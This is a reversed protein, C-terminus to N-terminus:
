RAFNANRLPILIGLFNATFGIILSPTMLFKSAKVRVVARPKIELKNKEEGDKASVTISFTARVPTSVIPVRM